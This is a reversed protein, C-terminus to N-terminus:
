RENKRKEREDRLREVESREFIRMGTGTRSAHLAGRANLQRVRQTSLNLIKAAEGITLVTELM